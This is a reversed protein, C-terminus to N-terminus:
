DDLWSEGGGETKFDIPKCLHNCAKRASSRSGSLVKLVPKHYLLDREVPGKLNRAHIQGDVPLNSLM